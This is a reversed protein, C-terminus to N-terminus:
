KNMKMKSWVGTVALMEIDNKGDEEAV